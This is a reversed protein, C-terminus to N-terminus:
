GGLAEKAILTGYSHGVGHEAKLWAQWQKPEAVSARMAVVKGEHGVM